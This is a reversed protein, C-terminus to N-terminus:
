LRETMARIEAPHIGKGLKTNFSIAEYVRCIGFLVAKELDTEGAALKATIAASLICGTGHTNDAELLPLGLVANTEELSLLHQAVGDQPGCKILVHAAGMEELRYVAEDAGDMTELSVGTLLEAEFRNPTVLFAQPLLHEKFAQVADDSALPHGHKSILVPDVVVPCEVNKLKSAILRIIEGNGLAGTKIATPPIDNAVADFQAEILEPDLTVVRSVERTNQVTLLTVVSMGYAGLQQFTKLDAQIGAGGSPDSGAITLAVADSYIAVTQAKSEDVSDAPGYIMKEKV